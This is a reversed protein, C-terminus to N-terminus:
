LGVEDLSVLNLAKKYRRILQRNSINLIDEIDYDELCKIFKLEMLEVLHPDNITDIIDYTLEKLEEGKQELKAIRKELYMKESVLDDITKAVGGKPMDSYNTTKISELRSEISELKDKLRLVCARNKKYKKLLKKKREDDKNTNQNLKSIGLDDM